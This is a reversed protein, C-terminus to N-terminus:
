QDETDDDDKVEIAEYTAEYSAILTLPIGTTHVKVPAKHEDYTRQEIALAGNAVLYKGGVYTTKKKKADLWTIVVTCKMEPM